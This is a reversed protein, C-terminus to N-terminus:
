ITETGMKARRDLFLLKSEHDFVFDRASASALVRIVLQRGPHVPLYAIVVTTIFAISVKEDVTRPTPKDTFSAASLRDASLM